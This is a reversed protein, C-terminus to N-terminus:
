KVQSNNLPLESGDFNGYFISFVYYYYYYYYYNLPLDKTRSVQLRRKFVVTPSVKSLQLSVAM